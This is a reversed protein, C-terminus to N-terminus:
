ALSPPWTCPATSAGTAVLTSDTASRTGPRPRSLNVGALSAFAAESRVRGHHSWATFAVAATAPGIGIKDLLGAAPSQHLFETMRTHNRTLDTPRWPRRPPAAGLRRPASMDVVREDGM